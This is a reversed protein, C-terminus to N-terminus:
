RPLGRLVEVLMLLAMAATGTAYVARSRDSLVVDPPDGAAIGPYGWGVEQRWEQDKSANPTVTATRRRKLSSVAQRKERDDIAM